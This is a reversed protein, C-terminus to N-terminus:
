TVKEHFKRELDIKIQSFAKESKEILDRQQSCTENLQKLEQHKQKLENQLQENQQAVLHFKENSQKIEQKSLQLKKEYDNECQHIKNQYTSQQENLKQEFLKQMDYFKETITSLQKELEDITKTAKTKTLDNEKRLLDVGSESRLRLSKLENEYRQVQDAHDRDAHRLKNTLEQTQLQLTENTKVLSIKEEDLKQKLQQLRDVNSRLEVMRREMESITSDNTGQQSKYDNEMKKLRQNTEELLDQHIRSHQRKIDQKENEHHLKIEHVKREMESQIEKLHEQITIQESKTQQKQHDMEFKLRQNEENLKELIMELQKNGDELTHLKTEYRNRLAELETNKTENMRQVTSDYEKQWIFRHERLRVEFQRVFTDIDNVSARTSTTTATTPRRSPHTPPLGFDNTNMSPVLDHASLSRFPPQQQSSLTTTSSASLIREMSRLGHYKHDDDFSESKQLIPPPQEDLLFLSEDNEINSISTM